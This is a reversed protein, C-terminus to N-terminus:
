ESQLFHIYDLWITSSHFDIGVHELAFEHTQRMKERLYIYSLGGVADVGGNISGDLVIGWKSSSTFSEWAGLQVVPAHVTDRVSCITCIGWYYETLYKCLLEIIGQM